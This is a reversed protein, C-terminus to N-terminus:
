IGAATFAGLFVALSLAFFLRDSMGSALTRAFMYAATVVLGDAMIAMAASVTRWNNRVFPRVSM